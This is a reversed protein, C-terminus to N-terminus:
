SVPTETRVADLSERESGKLVAEVDQVYALGHEYRIIVVEAGKAIAGEDVSRAGATFRNGAKSYVIEGM